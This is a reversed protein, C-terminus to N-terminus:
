PTPWRGWLSLACASRSSLWGIPACYGAAARTWRTAVSPKISCPACSRACLKAWSRWSCRLRWSPWLGPYTLCQGACCSSWEMRWLSTKCCLTSLTMQLCCYIRRGTCGNSRAACKRSSMPPLLLAVARASCVRQFPHSRQRWCMSHMPLLRSLNTRRSPLAAVSPRSARPVSPLPECQLSCTSTPSQAAAAAQTCQLTAATSASWCTRTRTSSVCLVCSPCLAAAVMTCAWCSSCGWGSRRSRGRRRM